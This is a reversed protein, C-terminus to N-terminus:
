GRGREELMKVIAPHITNRWTSECQSATRGPVTGLFRNPAETLAAAHLALLEKATWRKWQRATGRRMPVPPVPGPPRGRRAGGSPATRSKTYEPGDDDSIEIIESKDDDSPDLEDYEPTPPASLTGMGTSKSSLVPTFLALRPLVFPLSPDPFALKPLLTRGSTLITPTTLLPPVVEERDPKRSSTALKRSTESKRSPRSKRSPGPDHISESAVPQSPHYKSMFEQLELVAEVPVGHLWTGQEWDTPTPTCRSPDPCPTGRAPLKGRRKESMEEDGQRRKRKSSRGSMSKSKNRHRDKDGHRDKDRHKGKERYKSKDQRRDRKGDSSRGTINHDTERDKDMADHRAKDKPQADVRSSGDGLRGGSM